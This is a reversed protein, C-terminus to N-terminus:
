RNNRRDIFLRLKTGCIWNAVCALGCVEKLGNGSPATTVESMEHYDQQAYPNARRPQYGGNGSAQTPSNASCM